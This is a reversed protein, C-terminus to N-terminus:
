HPESLEIMGILRSDPDRFRAARGVEMDAIGDITRPTECEEFVVGSTRLGAVEAETRTSSRWRPIRARRNATERAFAFFTGAGADYDITRPNEFRLRFGLVDEYFRRLPALYATPM